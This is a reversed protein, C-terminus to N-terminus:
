ALALREWDGDSTLCWMVGTSVMEVIMSSGDRRIKRIIFRDGVEPEDKVKLVQMESRMVAVIGRATAVAEQYLRGEDTTQESGFKDTLSKIMDCAGDLVGIISRLRNLEIEFM